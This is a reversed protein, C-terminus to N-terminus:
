KKLVLIHLTVPYFLGKEGPTKADKTMAIDGSDTLRQLL